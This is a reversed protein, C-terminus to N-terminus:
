KPIMDRTDRFRLRKIINFATALLLTKRMRDLGNNLHLTFRQLKYVFLLLLEGTVLM